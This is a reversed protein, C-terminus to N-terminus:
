RLGTYGTQVAHINVLDPDPWTLHIGDQCIQGSPAERDLFNFGLADPVSRCPVVDDITCEVLPSIGERIQSADIWGLNPGDEAFDMFSDTTAM